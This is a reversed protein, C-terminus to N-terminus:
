LVDGVSMPSVTSVEWGEGEKRNQLLTTLNNLYYGLM